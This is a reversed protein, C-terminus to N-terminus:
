LDEQMGNLQGCGYICGGRGNVPSENWSLQMDLESHCKNISLKGLSRVYCCTLENCGDILAVMWIAYVCEYYSLCHIYIHKLLTISEPRQGPIGLLQCHDM